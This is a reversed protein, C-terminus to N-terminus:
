SFCVIQPCAAMCLTRERVSRPELLPRCTCSHSHPAVGATKSGQSSVMDTSRSAPTTCHSKTAQRSCEQVGKRRSCLRWLMRMCLALKAFEPHDRHQGTAITCSHIPLSGIIRCQCFQNFGDEPVVPKPHAHPSSYCGQSWLLLSPTMLRPVTHHENGGWDPDEGRARSPM